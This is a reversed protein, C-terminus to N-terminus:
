KSFFGYFFKLIVTNNVTDTDLPPVGGGTLKVALAIFYTYIIVTALGSFFGLAAGLLTDTKKVLEFRKMVGTAMIVISIIIKLLVFTVIILGDRVLRKVIPSLIHEEIYGAAKSKDEDAAAKLAEKLHEGSEKLIENLQDRDIHYKELTEDSINPSKAFDDVIKNIDKDTEVGKKDLYKEVNDGMDGDKAIAKNLEKSDIDGEVGNERLVDEIMAGTDVQEVFNQAFQTTGDKFYADYVAGHAAVGVVVAIIFAVITGVVGFITKVFGKLACILTSFLIILIIAIDLISM